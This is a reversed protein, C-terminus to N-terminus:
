GVAILRSDGGKGGGRFLYHFRVSLPFQLQNASTLCGTCCKMTCPPFARHWRGRDRARRCSDEEDVWWPFFLFNRKRKRLLFLLVFLFFRWVHSGSLFSAALEWSKPEATHTATCGTDAPEESFPKGIGKLMCSSWPTWWIRRTRWCGASQEWRSWKM